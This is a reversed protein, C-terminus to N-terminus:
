GHITGNIGRLPAGSRGNVVAMIEALVSLAIETPTESGVDLGAPAYLLADALAPHERMSRAREQSGLAGLYALPAERLAVLCAIDRELNHTMVVVSTRADLSLAELLQAPEACVVTVSAPLDAAQLRQPDNDVVTVRWGLASALPLLARATASSGIIVLAHSPVIPEVLVDVEGRSSPLTLTTARGRDIPVAQDIASSLAPDGLEDLLTTSTTWLLHRPITVEGEVCFVTALCARERADICRALADVFRTCRVPDLPTLLVELEGGCGMEMMVDLGSEANYSILVPEGSAIAHQARLVIDRQPCGGSLECVVEGSEYVLM